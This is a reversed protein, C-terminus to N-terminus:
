WVSVPSIVAIMSVIKMAVKKLVATSSRKASALKLSTVMRDHIGPSFPGKGSKVSYHYIMIAGDIIKV